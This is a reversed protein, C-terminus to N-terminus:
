YSNSSGNKNDTRYINILLVGVIIAPSEMLAMAAVMHGGYTVDLDRLFAAATIFTVASISGYTAAIAGADFVSTKKKLIYFTYVPVLFAMLVAVGLTILVNSTIGSHALEVGGKLGISLLLYLSLFKPIPQPIDLDSKIFVVILGLFFFLVAPNLLNQLIIDTSM